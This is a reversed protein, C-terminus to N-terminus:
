EYRYVKVKSSATNLEACSYGISSKIDYEDYTTKSHRALSPTVDKEAKLEQVHEQEECYSDGNPCNESM